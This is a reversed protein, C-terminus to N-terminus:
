LPTNKINVRYMPTGTVADVATAPSTQSDTFIRQAVVCSTLWASAAVEAGPTDGACVDSSVYWLLIHSCTCNRAILIALM